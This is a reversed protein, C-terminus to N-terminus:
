AACEETTKCLMHVCCSHSWDSVLSVKALDASMQKRVSALELACQQQTSLEASAVASQVAQAQEQAAERRIEDCAAQMNKKWELELEQRSTAVASDIQQRVNVESNLGVNAKEIAAICETRM